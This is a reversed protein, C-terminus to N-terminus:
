DAMVPPCEDLGDRDPPEVPLSRSFTRGAVQVEFVVEATGDDPTEYLICDWFRPEEGVTGVSATVTVSEDFARIETTEADSETRALLRVGVMEECGRYLHPRDRDQALIVEVDAVEYISIPLRDFLEGTEADVIRLHSTGPGEGHVTVHADALLLPQGDLTPGFVGEGRRATMVADETTDLEFPPLREGDITRLGIDFTGGVLVPGLQPESQDFFGRGVFRLGMPTLDSCTEDKPCEGSGARDGEVTLWCASSLTMLLTASLAV